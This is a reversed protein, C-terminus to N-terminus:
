LITINNKSLKKVILQMLNRGDRLDIDMRSDLNVIKRVLYHHSLQIVEAALSKSLPEFPYFLLLIGVILALHKHCDLIIDFRRLSDSKGAKDM